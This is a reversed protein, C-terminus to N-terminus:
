RVFCNKRPTNGWCHNEMPPEGPRGSVLWSFKWGIACSKKASPQLVPYEPLMRAFQFADDPSTQVTGM